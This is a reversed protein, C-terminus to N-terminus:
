GHRYSAAPLRLLDIILSKVLGYIAPDGSARPGAVNVIQIRYQMIWAAVRKVADDPSLQEFDVHICPRQHRAAFQRTLLSGGTLAGHSCILTGDSDIVNQETRDKYSRSQMVRLHYCAPLPGDETRRGYPLWGGYPCGMERAGDLAGRDAGTQGGSIIKEICFTGQMTEELFRLGSKLWM